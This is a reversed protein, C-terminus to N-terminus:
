IIINFHFYNIFLVAKKLLDLRKYAKILQFINYTYKGNKMEELLDFDKHLICRSDLDKLLIVNKIKLVDEKIIDMTNNFDKLANNTNKLYNYLSKVGIVFYSNEHENKAKLFFSIYSKNIFDCLHKNKQHMTYVYLLSSLAIGVSATM